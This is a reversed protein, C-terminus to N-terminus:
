GPADEAGAPSPELVLGRQVLTRVVATVDAQLDRSGGVSFRAALKGAAAAVPTEGDCLEWVAAASANLVSVERSQPNYLILKAGLPRSVIGDVRRPLARAPQMPSKEPM